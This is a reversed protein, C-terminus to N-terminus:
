ESNSIFSVMELMVQCVLDVYSLVTVWGDVFIQSSSCESLHKDAAM